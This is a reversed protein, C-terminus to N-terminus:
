YARNLVFESCGTQLIECKGRSDATFFFDASIVSYLVFHFYIEFVSIPQLSNRSEISGTSIKFYKGDLKINAEAWVSSFFVVRDACSRQTCFGIPSFLKMRSSTVLKWFIFFSLSLVWHKHQCDMIFLNVHQYSM